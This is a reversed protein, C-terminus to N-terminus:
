RMKSFESLVDRTYAKFKSTVKQVELESTSIFDRLDKAKKAPESNMDSAFNKGKVWFNFLLENAKSMAETETTLYLLMAQTDYQKAKLRAEILGVAALDRQTKDHTTKMSGVVKNVKEVLDKREKQDSSLEAPPAGPDKDKGTKRQKQRPAQGSSSAPNTKGPNDAESMHQTVNAYDEASLGVTQETGVGDILARKTSKESFTYHYQLIDAKALAPNEHPRSQMATIAIKAAAKDNMYLPGGLTAETVWVEKDEDQRTTVRQTFNKGVCGGAEPDLMYECLWERRSMDTQLAKFELAKQTNHTKLAHHM